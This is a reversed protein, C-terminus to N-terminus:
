RLKAIIRRAKEKYALWKEEFAMPSLSQKFLLILSCITFMYFYTRPLRGIIAASRTGNM